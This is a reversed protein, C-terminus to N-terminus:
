LGQNPPSSPFAQHEDIFFAKFFGPCSFVPLTFTFLMKRLHFSYSELIRLHDKHIIYAFSPNLLLSWITLQSFSGAKSHMFPIEKLM